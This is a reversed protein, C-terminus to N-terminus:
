KRNLFSSAYRLSFLYKVLEQYITNKELLHMFVTGFGRVIKSDEKENSPVKVHVKLSFILSVLVGLAEYDPSFSLHEM